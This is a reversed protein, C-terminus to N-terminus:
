LSKCLRFGREQVSTGKFNDTQIARQVRIEYIRTVHRCAAPTYHCIDWYIPNSTWILFLKCAVLANRFKLWM